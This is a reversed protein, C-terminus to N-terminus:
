SRPNAGNSARHQVRVAMGHLIAIAISAIAVLAAFITFVQDVQNQVPRPQEDDENAVSTADAQPELALTVDSINEEISDLRDGVDDLLKTINEWNDGEKGSVPPTRIALLEGQIEGTTEALDELNVQLDSSIDVMRQQLWVQRLVLAALLVIVAIFVTLSAVVLQNLHRDPESEM